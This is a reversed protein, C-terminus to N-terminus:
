GVGGGDVEEYQKGGDSEGRWGEGRKVGCKRRGREGGERSGTEGQNKAM